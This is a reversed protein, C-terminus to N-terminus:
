KKIIARITGYVENLNNPNKVSNNNIIFFNYNRTNNKFMEYFDKRPINGNLFDDGIIQMSAHNVQGCVIFSTNTRIIPPVSKLYQLIVVVSVNLHRGKTFIDKLINSRLFDDGGFDDFIILINPLKKNNMSIEKLRSILMEFWKISIKNYICKPDIFKEYFNNVEETGSFVFTKNFNNKEKLYIYKFLESKGSLTKACIITRNGILKFDM